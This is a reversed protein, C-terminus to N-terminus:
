LDEEEDIMDSSCASEEFFGVGGPVSACLLDAVESVKLGDEISLAAELIAALNMGAVVKVQDNGHAVVCARNYPTGGVLDCVIVVEEGCEAVDRLRSEFEDPSVVQTFDVFSVAEENGSLMAVASAVGSAYHGHGALVLRM